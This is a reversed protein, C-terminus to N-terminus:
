SALNIMKLWNSALYYCAFIKLSPEWNITTKKNSKRRASAPMKGKIIATGSFLSHAMLTCWHKNISVAWALWLRCAPLLTSLFVCADTRSLYFFSALHFAWLPTPVAETDILEWPGILNAIKLSNLTKCTSRGITEFNWTCQPPSLLAWPLIM